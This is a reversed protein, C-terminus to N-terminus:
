VRNLSISIKIYFFVQPNDSLGLYNNACFNLVQKGESSIQHKQPSTIVREHKYTGAQKIDELRKSLNGRLELHIKYCLILLIKDISSYRDLSFFQRPLHSLRKIM